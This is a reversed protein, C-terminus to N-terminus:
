SFCGYHLPTDNPFPNSGNNLALAQFIVPMLSHKGLSVPVELFLAPTVAGGARDPRDLAM